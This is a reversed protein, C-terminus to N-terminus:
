WFGSKANEESGNGSLLRKAERIFEEDGTSILEAIKLIAEERRSPDEKLRNAAIILESFRDMELRRKQSKEM